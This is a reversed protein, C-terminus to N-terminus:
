LPSILVHFCFLPIQRSPSGRQRRDTHQTRADCIRCHRCCLRRRCSRGHHGVHMSHVLCVGAGVVADIRSLRREVQKRRSRVACLRLKGERSRVHASFVDADAQLIKRDATGDANRCRKRRAIHVM